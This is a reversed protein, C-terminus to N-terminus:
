EWWHKEEKAKAYQVAKGGGEEARGIAEGFGREARGVGEGAGVEITAFGKEAREFAEGRARTREAKSRQYEGLARIKESKARIKTAKAEAKVMASQAHIAQIKEREEKNKLHQQYLDHASGFVSKFFGTKKEGSHARRTAKHISHPRPDNADYHVTHGGIKKSRIDMGRGAELKRIDHAHLNSVTPKGLTNKKHAHGKFRTYRSM